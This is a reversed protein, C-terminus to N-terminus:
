SGERRTIDSKMQNENPLAVGFGDTTDKAENEAAVAPDNEKLKNEQRFSAYASRNLLLAKFDMLHGRNPLWQFESAVEPHEDDM